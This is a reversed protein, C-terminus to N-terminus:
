SVSLTSCTEWFICSPRMLTLTEGKKMSIPILHSLVRILISLSLNRLIATDRKVIKTTTYMTTSMAIIMVTVTATVIIMVTITVIVLKVMGMDRASFEVLM